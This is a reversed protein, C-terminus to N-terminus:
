PQTEACLIRLESKRNMPDHYSAVHLVRAGLRIRDTISCDPLAPDAGSPRWQTVLVTNRVSTLQRAMVAERSNLPEERVNIGAGRQVWTQTKGGQGDSALVSTDVFALARRSGANLSM